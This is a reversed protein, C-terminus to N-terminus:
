FKGWRFTDLAYQIDIQDIKNITENEFILLDCDFHNWKAIDRETRYGKVEIYCEYDILYFDPFYLRWDGNWYYPKPNVESEWRIGQADLWEAVKVEWSGKLNIGDKYEIIKVRGCVNNKSYSDPNEKVARKMAESHKRREEPDSFRKINAESIKKRTEETPTYKPPEIGLERAKTYQNAGKKGLMGYSPKVHLGDPNKKCRVEHQINSNKSKGERDCYQCIFM